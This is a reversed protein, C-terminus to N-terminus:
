KIKKELKVEISGDVKNSTPPGEYNLVVAEDSPDFSSLLTEM